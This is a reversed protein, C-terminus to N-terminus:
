VHTFSANILGRGRLAEWFEKPVETRTAAVLESLREPRSSNIAIASVQPPSIAFRVCAALLSVDHELCTARFGERWAIRERDAADAEDLRHYDFFDGGLLFGSHFIASNIVAVGRERLSALFDLLEAEHRHVTLSNATM